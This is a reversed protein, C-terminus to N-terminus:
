STRKRVMTTIRRFDSKGSGMKPLEDFYAFETPVAISPLKEAMQRILDREDVKRTIAVYLRAGKQPDPVDVICFDVGEPLL